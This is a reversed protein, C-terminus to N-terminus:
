SIGATVVYMEETKWYKNAIYLLDEATCQRIRRILDLYIRNDLGYDLKQKLADSQAFVGDLERLL